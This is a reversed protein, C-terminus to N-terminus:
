KQMISTLLADKLRKAMEELIGAQVRLKKNKEELEDAEQEMQLEKLKRHMRSRKSAENNKDRLERYKMDQTSMSSNESCANSVASDRRKPPRGRRARTLQQSGELALIMDKIPINPKRRKYKRPTTREQHPTYTEDSDESRRRRRSARATAEEESDVQPESKPTIPQYDLPAPAAALPSIFSEQAVTQQRSKLVALPHKEQELQEVYSLVEPTSIVPGALAPRAAVDLSLGAGARRPAVIYEAVVDDCREVASPTVTYKLDQSDDEIFPTDHTILKTYTDWGAWPEQRDIVAPLSPIDVFRETDPLAFMTEVGEAPSLPDKPTTNYFSSQAAVNADFSDWGPSLPTHLTDTNFARDDTQKTSDITQVQEDKAPDSCWGALEQFFEYDTDHYMNSEFVPEPKLFEEFSFHPQPTATPGDAIVGHLGNEQNEKKIRDIDVVKLISQTRHSTQSFVM